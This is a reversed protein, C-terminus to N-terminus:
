VCCGGGQSLFGVVVLAETVVVCRGSGGAQSMLVRQCLHFKLVVVTASGVAVVGMVEAMMVIRIAETVVVVVIVVTIRDTSGGIAACACVRVVIELELFVGFEM